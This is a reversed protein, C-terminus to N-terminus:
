RTGRGLGFYIFGEPAVKSPDYAGALDVIASPMRTLPKLKKLNLCAFQEEGTLIVICDAGELVENLNSKAFTAGMTERKSAPDYLNVKAGKLELMKVFAATATTPSNTGLVAVRARRLSKSCSRLADQTLNVAHKVMNENIQRSLAPLRLKVNINEASELLLCADDKAEQEVTSPWFGKDDLGLLRFVEFYDVNVNECFVALENALAKDADYKAVSFLTAFEATKIDSVQKVNPALTKAINTASELSAKGVGAVSLEDSSPNMPMYALGFDSDAKLGSTNELTEKATGGTFGLGVIDGYVVLSGEHLASGVQKCVNIAESNDIKKNDDVKPPVTIIILDTKSVAKKIDNSVSLQGQSILARLNGEATQASPNKGKTLKKIVSANADCCTVKYGASALTVAFFVGKQGCGVVSALVKARKDKSDLDELKVNLIPHM